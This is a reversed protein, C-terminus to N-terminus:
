SVLKKLSEIKRKYLSFFSDYWLELKNIEEIREFLHIIAKEDNFSLMLSITKLLNFYEDVDNINTFSIKKIEIGYSFFPFFHIKLCDLNEYFNEIVMKKFEQYYVEERNCRPLHEHCRFIKNYKSCLLKEFIFIKISHIGFFHNYIFSFFEDIVYLFQDQETINPHEAMIKDTIIVEESLDLILSDLIGQKLVKILEAKNTIYNNNNVADILKTRIIEKM